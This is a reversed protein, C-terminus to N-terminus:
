LKAQGLTQLIVLQFTSYLGTSCLSHRVIPRRGDPLISNFAHPLLGAGNWVGSRCFLIRRWYRENRSKWMSIFKGSNGPAWAQCHFCLKILVPGLQYKPMAVWHKWSPMHFLVSKSYSMSLCPQLFALLWVLARHQNRAFWLDIKTRSWISWARGFVLFTSDNPHYNM